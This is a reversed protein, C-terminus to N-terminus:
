KLYIPKVHIFKYLSSLIGYEYINESLFILRHEVICFGNLECRELNNIVLINVLICM